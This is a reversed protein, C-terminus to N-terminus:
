LTIQMMHNAATIEDLFPASMPNKLSLEIVIAIKIPMVVPNGTVPNIAVTPFIAICLVSGVAKKGTFLKDMESKENDIVVQSIMKQILTSAQATPISWDIHCNNEPWLNADILRPTLNFVVIGETAQSREIQDIGKKIHEFLNQTHPSRVTKLAYARKATADLAIVDPNDGNSHKPHDLKIRVDNAMLLAAWYLEILKNYVDASGYPPEQTLHVAGEALMELHPILLNFDPHDKVALIKAAMDHVAMGATYESRLDDPTGSFGNRIHNLISWLPLMDAESSTNKPISIGKEAILNEFDDVTQMADSLQVIM